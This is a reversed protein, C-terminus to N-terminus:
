WYELDSDNMDSSDEESDEEQEGHVGDIEPDFYRFWECRRIKTALRQRFLEVEFYILSDVPLELKDVLDALLDETVM